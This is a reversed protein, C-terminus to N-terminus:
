KSRIDKRPWLDIVRAYGVICDNPLETRSTAVKELCDIIMRLERKSIAQFQNLNKQLWQILGFKSTHVCIDEFNQTM